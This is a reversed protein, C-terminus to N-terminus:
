QGTALSLFARVACRSVAARMRDVEHVFRTSAASEDAPLVSLLSSLAVSDGSVVCGAVGAAVAAATSSPVSFLWQVRLM